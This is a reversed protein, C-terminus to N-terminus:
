SRNFGCIYGESVLINYHAKATKDTIGLASAIETFSALPNKQLYQFEKFYPIM